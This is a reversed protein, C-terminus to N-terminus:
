DQGYLNQIRSRLCSDLIQIIKTTLYISGLERVVRVDHSADVFDMSLSIKALPNLNGHVVLMM